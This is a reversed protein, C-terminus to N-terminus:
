CIVGPTLWMVPLIIEAAIFTWVRRPGPQEFAGIVREQQMFKYLASVPNVTLNSQRHNIVALFDIKAIANIEDNFVGHNDLDLADLSEIRDVVCLQKGIHAEASSLDPQKDVKM